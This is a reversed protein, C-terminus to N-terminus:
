AGYTMHVANPLNVAVLGIIGAFNDYIRVVRRHGTRSEVMTSAFM